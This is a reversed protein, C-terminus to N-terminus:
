LVLRIMKRNDIVWRGLERVWNEVVTNGREGTGELVDKDVLENSKSNSTTSDSDVQWRARTAGDLCGGM